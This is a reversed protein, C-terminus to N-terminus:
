QKTEDKDQNSAYNGWDFNKLEEEFTQFKAGGSNVKHDVLSISPKVANLSGFLQNNMDERSCATQDSFNSFPEDYPEGDIYYEPKIKKKIGLEGSFKKLVVGIAVVLVIGIFVILIKVLLEIKAAAASLGGAILATLGFEAVKDKGPVFDSYKKEPIYTFNKIITALQPKVANIQGADTVVSVTTVGTRGLIKTHYNILKEGESETLVSWVLNHSTTDYHPKEDWGIVNIPAIGKDKRAKNSEKTGKKIRDLIKDANLSGAENDKVYGLPDYKFLIFWDKNEQKVPIVVGIESGDITNGLYEMLVKTGKQGTFKYEHPLNLQALSSGVDITRGGDIWDIQLTSDQSLVLSAQSFLMLIILAVTLILKKLLCEEKFVNNLKWM